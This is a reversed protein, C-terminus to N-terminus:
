ERRSPGLQAKVGLTKALWAKVGFNQAIVGESAMVGYNETLWAM